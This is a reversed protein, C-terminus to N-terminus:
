TTHGCSSQNIKAYNQTHCTIELKTKFAYKIASINAKKVVFVLPCLKFFDCKQMLKIVLDGVLQSTIIATKLFSRLLKYM